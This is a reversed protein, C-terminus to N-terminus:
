RWQLFAKFPRGLHEPHTLTQFQRTHSVSWDGFRNKPKLAEAAIETLFRSQTCFAETQLGEKEGVARLSDFHVHATLDQAGPNALPNEAIRHGRYARLTGASRQPSLLEETTLGYDLTLLWGRKLARSADWWWSEAKPSIETTFGDPLIDLLAGPINMEHVRNLTQSGGSEVSLRQWLFSGCQGAVRWEFWRRESASWGIRHVPFADLLENSFIVGFVGRAQLAEWNPVWRVKQGFVALKSSQWDKRRPSPEIIWYELAGFLDPRAKQFWSLIDFALQGDHAGCEVIQFARPEFSEPDRSQEGPSRGGPESGRKKNDTFLQLMWEAFRFGLLEGFLPGVSVSTYFDGQRGVKASGTEYYGFEPHYLALEMFRAFSISGSAEIERELIRQLENMPKCNPKM